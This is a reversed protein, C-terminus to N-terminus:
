TLADMRPKGLSRYFELNDAREKDTTAWRCNKQSFELKRRDVLTLWSLAKWERETLSQDKAFKIMAHYTERKTIM